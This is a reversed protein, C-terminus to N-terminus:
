VMAGEREEKGARSMSVAMAIAAVSVMDLHSRRAHGQSTHLTYVTLGV